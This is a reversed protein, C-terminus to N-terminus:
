KENVNLEYEYENLWNMLLRKFQINSVGIDHFHNYIQNMEGNFYIQNTNENSTM